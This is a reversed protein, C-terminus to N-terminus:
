YLKDEIALRLYVAASPYICVLDISTYNKQISLMEFHHQWKLKRKQVNYNM